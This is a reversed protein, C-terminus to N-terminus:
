NDLPLVQLYEFRWTSNNYEDTSAFFGFYPSDIWRTDKYEFQFHLPQGRNAAFVKISDERVEIRYHNWGEPDVNVFDEADGLDIDGLRKMPSGGCDPCWELRDVREFLLKLPGYFITNTNYFHNFCNQHKYWEDYSLGPPCTQGNWDGGFVMGMSLLNAPAVIRAEFDIVYPVRPAPKLPSSLGWDWRDLVQMVYKGDEYFGHVRERYTSRRMSWGTTDDDFGDYYSGVVTVVNSWPGVKPGVLSRVRYYYVNNPSALKTVDLSTVPGVVNSTATTFNPDNSEHIEYGTAALSETWSLTFTNASNPQGATLTVPQPEPQLGYLIFPLRQIPSSAPQAVTVDASLELDQEASVLQATNTVTTGSEADGNMTAMITVTVTEGAPVTGEWSFTGAAYECTTTVVPPCEHDAYTVDAPIPDTLEAPIDVDGSNEIAFTYVIVGNPAVTDDAVTKTSNALDAAAVVGAPLSHAAVYREISPPTALLEETTPAFAAYPSEAPPTPADDQAASSLQAFLLVGLLAVIITVITTTRKPKPTWQSSRNNRAM